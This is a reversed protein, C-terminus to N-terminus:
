IDLDQLDGWSPGVRIKARLKVYLKMASEMEKKVIQAVQIVDEEAVEYILEDHLQLVFYAGRCPRSLCRQRLHETRASAHGHSRPVTPFAQELRRQIGVTASKVIDAASGQVTTNVAQREAHSKLYVNKDKIAPLFRKRGLITQVYGNKACNKVTEKLFAHIGTYRSKFTEIYCAADNEEIGMQEALSKAGMGYIIGYCIQKAQQRLNDDVAEPEIMRWEAAISRFVDAGSNLAQLLRRDRSLHALIRLELQSYDAALILGGPFPVFAHRMSVSFPMGKEPSGEPGKVLLALERHIKSKRSGPKTLIAKGREQSPPSEGILTPMQIEFDKPVNQINPETFSVRGTATHTQSIPYIREMDLLPLWCKERQLPFVVKTMANTIRRWELIVGPLPHLPKLKELVDKTTSFQKSLKVRTAAGTRRAYGLTKKNKLANLDGNPPLKLELFLVEAVDEPSTLSFAHGALQYAQSELARLKAQMVHKQSDCEATSFGVGNLELLALCYLAPMEVQRFVDLLRDQELLSSLQAMTSFVLVSEIAARYRGTHSSEGGMGLSRVGQGPGIGELLPLEAPAFNTVMNHLTREKSGPDLLWCAVKPDQFNGELSLGCALLLTKYLQILDYTIVAGEASSLSCGRLCAQVQKLREGVSLSEDLPPPALSASVDIIPQERLLSVYYADKGGWCVSMGTLILVENGKVPFGDISEKNKVNTNGKRFKGGIASKPFQMREKKECALAISFRSKTKWEQIFTNFLRYDSAVDIIAFGEPSSPLSTATQTPDQSLQLSFGEEILSTDPDPDPDPDSFAPPPPVQATAVAVPDPDLDSFAPPPPLEAMAVAVTNGQLLPAPTVPSSQASSITMKIRPTVPDLTPPILENHGRQGSVPEEVSSQSESRGGRVYEPGLDLNTELSRPKITEITMQEPANQDIEVDVPANLSTTSPWQDLIDQMGPSLHFSSEFITRETCVAPVQISSAHKVRGVPDSALTGNSPCRPVRTPRLPLEDIASRLVTTLRNLYSEGIQLSDGWESLNFSSEGWQIAEPDNEPKEDDERQAQASPLHNTDVETAGGGAEELPRGETPSDLLFDENLSDFLFSSSRNISSEAANEASEKNANTPSNIESSWINMKVVHLAEGHCDSAQNSYALIDEMQSDTLSINYKPQAKAPSDSGRAEEHSRDDMLLELHFDSGAGNEKTSREQGPSRHSTHTRKSEPSVTPKSGHDDCAVVPGEHLLMMMKETQTDLQFSDGLEEEQGSTYLEPSECKEREAAKEVGAGARCRKELLPPLTQEGLIGLHNHGRSDAKDDDFDSPPVPLQLVRSQAEWVMTGCNTGANYHKSKQRCKKLGVSPFDGVPSAPSDDEEKRARNDLCARKLESGSNSSKITERNLRAEPGCRLTHAECSSPSLLKTVLPHREDVEGQAMVMCLNSAEKPAVAMTVHGDVKRRKSIPTLPRKCHPDGESGLFRERPSSPGAVCLGPPLKSSLEVTAEDAKNKKSNISKLVKSLTLSQADLEGRGLGASQKLPVAARLSDKIPHEESKALSPQSSRHPAALRSTNCSLNVAMTVGKAEDGIHSKADSSNNGQGPTSDRKVPQAPGELTVKQLEQLSHVLSLPVAAPEGAFPPPDSPQQTLSEPNWQVGLLALDQQLLLQAEAVIQLAAEKETLGRKGSVWICRASQREQAEQESEDAAQRSSKFPVAKKLVKEVNTASAHALDSVTLFGAGYLARARQANLLSVRVLDCLERQVGFSLRSQFQSLLLELNHWGLRNCFVTVMGAYTSASQQLSQLQGRSCGYKKAVTALPVESILDLLVLTTFFRKHIAMQRRQKETKAVIKGGVSRALFGEQIGVMEAVRKMSSPLNEWLCFFQYWDITTWEAYVPTIQYLIHLDNELVFGKMARQLDAFIGLAEPPSLSSSLTAAGLQTPCYRETKQEGDGEAQIQIFENEMLWEVCAEIAGGGPEGHESSMSAALLTCSAYTRVDEPTSAVGGVIIELIARIMSTTLGEGEKKVLCSNIPKLSGQILSVGQLRESEKCVLVSEGMTDVGKRGARGSMQKYTLIDLLRGNFVPTRIIVRRAPLNVGSSLTSTAALVRVQGQRFAGELIDREDFTLGAHHFAVGWPVTRQLVQDLGAPSHKLQSVVDRLGEQDLSVPPPEPAKQGERAAQLARHQLNYFERAISDALKECWNKSPCFLLVSRGDQITEFCLSVIHDDDGKVQLAPKFLRVLDMSGDYISTGIKLREDLPVPRYDTHYLEANLWCALLKLNPLTASMGVIQVGESFNAEGMVGGESLSARGESSTRAARRTVYRIKTLLLELLYGRGSDGLMHLEDVVVIGLLDMRNEEILRNILGNAKEITCVAVDLSTFGGAASTSGMYGEVRIGAEQFVNQLYFMKEKAVSVFPLIFMAKRRTELVRKLILLESVLTKGASTPASYVLNKGELVKGLTLCEAQWQFMQVVGLSHYRELVPKPLGWNSLLLKDSQDAPIAMHVSHGPTDGLTSLNLGPPLTLVSSSANGAVSQQHLRRKRELAAAMHTPSFLIYDGSADLPSPAHQTNAAKLCPAVSATDKGEPARKQSGAGWSDGSDPSSLSCARQRKHTAKPPSNECAAPRREHCNKASRADESFLLKKALDTCDRSTRSYMKSTELEPLVPVARVNSRRMEGAGMICQRSGKYKIKTFEAGKEPVVGDSTSVSVPNAQPKTIVAADLRKKLPADLAQLIDEDLALTSDGIWEQKETPMKAMKTRNMYASNCDPQQLRGSRRPTLPEVCVPPSKRKIIQHQGM